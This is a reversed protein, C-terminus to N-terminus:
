TPTGQPRPTNQLTHIKPTDWCTKSQFTKLSFRLIKLRLIKVNKAMFFEDIQLFLTFLSERIKRKKHNQSTKKEAELDRELVQQSVRFTKLITDVYLLIQIKYHM